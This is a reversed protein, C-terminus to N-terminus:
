LGLPEVRPNKQLIAESKVMKAGVKEMEEIAQKIDGPNLDIGRCADLVIYTKFHRRVADFASFKVCYDTALGVIYIENYGREKLYDALGTSRVHLNDFFTSYSDIKPDTGKYFIKTIKETKLTPHFESGWTNGVCHIPWLEQKIGQIDVVDGPKKGHEKAFSIHNPPHWDKTALVEDFREQLVNIIPIIKDGGEIALAGGPLFDNQVDVILLVKM